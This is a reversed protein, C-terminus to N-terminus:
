KGTGSIVLVCSISYYKCRFPWSILCAETVEVTYCKALVDLTEGQIAEISLSQSQFIERFGELGM